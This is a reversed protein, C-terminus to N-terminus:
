PRAHGLPPFDASSGVVPAAPVAPRAFDFHSKFKWRGGKMYQYLTLGIAQGHDRKFNNRVEEWSKDAVEKEAKNQITYHARFSQDQKSLFDADAPGWRQKFDNFVENAKANKASLAVGHSMRMPEHTSVPFPSHKHTVASIDTLISELQSGPLAHFLTIHAGIKNLRPPFYQKRLDNIRQHFAHDTRLTLVYTSEEESATNPIHNPDRLRPSPERQIPEAAPAEISDHAGATSTYPVSM